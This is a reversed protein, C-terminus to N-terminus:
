TVACPEHHDAGCWYETSRPTVDAVPTQSAEISVSYPTASASGSSVTGAILGSSSDITLGPPLNTASYHVSGTLNFDAANFSVSDGVTNTQDAFSYTPDIILNQSHDYNGVDFDVINNTQLSYSGEVAVRVGGIVQYLTPASQSLTQGDALTILLDGAKDIGLGCAGSYSTVISAPDAFPAVTFTDELQDQADGNFTVSVGAWVNPYIVEGFSGVTFNPYETAARSSANGGIFSMGLVSPSPGITFNSGSPAIQAQYGLGNVAFENASSATSFTLTDGSPLPMVSNTIISQANQIPSDVVSPDAYTRVAQIQCPTYAFVLDNEPAGTSLSAASPVERFELTEVSLRVNPARTMKPGSDFLWRWLSPPDIKSTALRGFFELGGTIGVPFCIIGFVPLRLFSAASLPRM